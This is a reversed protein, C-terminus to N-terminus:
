FINKRCEELVSLVQSRVSPKPAISRAAWYFVDKKKATLLEAEHPYLKRVIDSHGHYAAFMLASWGSDTQMGAEQKILFKVAISNGIAAGIMLATYGGVTRQGAQPQTKFFLSYNRTAVSYMLRTFNWKENGYDMLSSVIDKRGYQAALALACLGHKKQLGHEKEALLRAVDAHGNEVAFMLASMGHKTQLGAEVDILAEVVEVFGQNAAIMLATEGNSTVLGGEHPLLLQVVEHRRYQAALMMATRGEQDQLGAEELLLKCVDTHGYRAAIMLATRGTSTRIGREILLMKVNDIEGTYAAIMLATSGTIQCKSRRDTSHFELQQTYIHGLTDLYGILDHANRNCVSMMLRTQKDVRKHLPSSLTIPLEDAAIKHCLLSLILTNGRRLAEEFIGSDLADINDLVTDIKSCQVAHMLREWPSSVCDKDELLLMCEHRRMTRAIDLASKGTKTRLGAEFELLAEVCEFHNNEVALMLATYGDNDQMRAEHPALLRVFELKGASSALMLATRGDETTHRKETPLYKAVEHLCDLLVCEMLTTRGQPMDPESLTESSDLNHKETFLSPPVISTPQGFQLYSFVCQLTEPTYISSEALVAARSVYESTESCQLTCLELLVLGLCHKLSIVDTLPAETAISMSRTELGLLFLPDLLVPGELNYNSIIDAAGFRVPLESFEALNSSLYDIAKEISEAVRLVIAESIHTCAHAQSNLLVALQLPVVNFELLAESDSLVIIKYALISPHCLKEIAHILRTFPKASRGELRTFNIHRVFVQENHKVSFARYTVIDRGEFIVLCDRYHTNILSDSMLTSKNKGKGEQPGSVSHTVIPRASLPSLDMGHGRM